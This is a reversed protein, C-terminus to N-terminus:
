VQLLRLTMSIDDYIYNYLLRLTMNLHIQLLRFTMSTHIQIAINVDYNMHVQLLRGSHLPVNQLM